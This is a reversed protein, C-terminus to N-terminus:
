WLSVREGNALVYQLTEYLGFNHGPEPLLARTRVKLNAPLWSITHYELSPADPFNSVKVFTAFSHSYNPDPPIRQSGFVLVYYREGAVAPQACLLVLLLPTWRNM